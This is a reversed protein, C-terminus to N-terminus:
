RAAYSRMLDRRYLMIGYRIFMQDRLDDGNSAMVFSFTSTGAMIQAFGAGSLLVSEPLGLAAGTYGFNINGIDQGQIVLDNFKFTGQYEPLQKLDWEGQNRVKNYFQIGSEVIGETETTEKVTNANEQLTETFSETIDSTPEPLSEIEEQVRKTEKVTCIVTAIVTVVTLVTKILAFTWFQGSADLNNVPNNGCYAFMNNGTFGQGTSPYNDANIFRGIKPDYYRSQLYFLETEVDYVYGRYTLPNLAAVANNGTVTVEGYATYAYSVVTNGDDNVLAMVDGQLNTIYYYTDCTTGNEETTTYVKMTLPTGNADYTFDVTQNDKTMRVLQSGNYIYSYSTGNEIYRGTRLGANNYTYNWSVTGDTLKKLQRGHEWEFQRDGIQEPNGINNVGEDETGEYTISKSITGNADTTTLGTLLDGWQDNNYDYTVTGEATGLDAATTYAYTKHALINGANDYEWTYSKGAQQNDERTLQNTSDYTYRTTNTGDSVTLINGNDDYTYSYQAILNGDSLAGRYTKYSKIQSSTTSTTPNNFEFVETLVVTDGNKTVQQTVRGFSDYTYDVTTNDTTISTTRNDKDYTYATTRETGNIDEVLQTLNNNEDYEYGVSHSYNAGSEAYGTARGLLDYYYRTTIGSASDTVAALAGDNDYLYSISDGDEYTQKTQRGYSDYTYEVKDGNGYDLAKLWYNDYYRYSALIPDNEGTGLKVSERLGFVGYDFGYTTSPTTISKLLNNDYSYGASMTDNEEASLDKSVTELLFTDPDYAYETRTEETDNPAQVWELIGTDANYGYTTTKGLADTSSALYNYDSTYTNTSSITQSGSTISVKTTNGYNDYEYKYTLGEASTTKTLNHYNDYTYSIEAGSPLTVKVLNKKGDYDYETIQNQLDVVSIVEYVGDDDTDYYTYSSGFTEKFLQIGDFLVTNVNYDYTITVTVSDYADEAVIPAAAYQWYVSGDTDPNFSIKKDVPKEVENTYNFTVEIGFTRNEPNEKSIPASNGKAWGSLVFTDDKSGSINLTRSLRKQSQPEGTVSLVASDLQPAASDATAAVFGEGTWGTVGSSFDGYELLNYRSAAATKELQVCDMYATGETVLAPTISGAANATYTVELRTWDSNAKLVQSQATGLTLYAPKDGTKVWASFSYSEDKAISVPTQTATGTVSLSKAGLYHQTDTVTGGTWATGGEFSHDDLLNKVTNQLKSSMALENGIDTDGKHMKTYYNHQARGLEDQVSTVNGFDNFHTVQTINNVNDRIATRNRGYTITTHAGEAREEVSDDFTKIETVRNGTYTYELWQGVTDQEGEILDNATTLRNGSDYGYSVRQGDIETIGILRNNNDYEFSIRAIEDTGTGTYSIYDLHTYGNETIYHYTYVRGAGDTVTSIRYTNYATYTIRINNSKVQYDEIRTLRRMNDFHYRTKNGVCIEFYSNNSTARINFVIDRDNIDYYGTWELKMYHATGDGDEWIYYNNDDTCPYVRQNMSTKWSIGTYYREANGIDNTNYVHSISVPARNGGFGIDGHTWVLNGTYNNVHGTGARGASASTYSWYDEYGNHNEYTIQLAPRGSSFGCDSSYFQMWKVEQAQEVEDSAKFMMGYNQGEYWGRVINTIDWTYTGADEVVKYDEIIPNFDPRNSWHLDNSEWTELVEHVEIVASTPYNNPKVLSVQAHVIVDAATFQPLQAYKIFFQEIGGNAGYGAEMVGRTHSVTTKEAIEQDQINSNANGASVVPDLIVPWQRDADALWAQPLIYTLTYTEGKGALQVQIDENYAYGADVLFPAPMVMVIDTKDENYFDIHGDEGLVPVLNGVNLTYKYGRLNENYREIIISEKVKNSDLDYTINTNSFVNKYLLRSALKDSITEPHEAAAKAEAIGVDQLEATATQTSALAFPQASETANLEAQESMVVAGSPKNLQGALVFSLTYGDKTITVPSGASMQQPLSVQWVGATNVYTGDTTTMLTNDIEAWTGNNDYHVPNDYVVALQMGNSLQFDKSHETRREEIEGVIYAPEEKAPLEVTTDASLIEDSASISQKETFVIEGLAQTPLLNIVMVITLVMSCIRLFRKFM